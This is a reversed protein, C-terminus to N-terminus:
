LETTNICDGHSPYHGLADLSCNRPVVRRDVSGDARLVPVVGWGVHYRCFVIPYDPGREEARKRLFSAVLPEDFMINWGSYQATRPDPASPCILHTNSVYVGIRLGVPWAEDGFDSKYLQLASYIQKLNSICTTERGREKASALAANLFVALIAVIGVVLLIEVLTFGLPQRSRLFRKRETNCGWPGVM